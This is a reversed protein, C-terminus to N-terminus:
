GAPEWLEVKNGDADLIHVFKGYDYSAIDDLVTVGNAKLQAVLGEINQVRYNIMFGKTSPAFYDSGTQFPSWQLSNVEEPKDVSRSEFTSGWDNVELGLNSAYWERTEKPNDSFFFIGGIGTVKPTAVSSQNPTENQPEDM